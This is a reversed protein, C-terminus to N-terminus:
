IKVIEAVMIALSGFNWVDLSKKREVSWGGEELGTVSNLDEKGTVFGGL